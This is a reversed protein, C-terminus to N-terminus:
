RSLSRAKSLVAYIEHFFVTQMLKDDSKIEATRRLQSFLKNFASMYSPKIYSANDSELEVWNNLAGFYGTIKDRFIINGLLRVTKVGPVYMIEVVKAASVVLEIQPMKHELANKTVQSYAVQDGTYVNAPLNTESFIDYHTYLYMNDFEEQFLSEIGRQNLGKCAIEVPVAPITPKVGVKMKMRAAHLRARKEAYDKCLEKYDKM